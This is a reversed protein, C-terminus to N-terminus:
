KEWGAARVLLDVVEVEKGFMPVHGGDVRVVEVDVGGERAKEIFEEQKETMLVYDRLMQMYYVRVGEEKYGENTLANTFSVRSHPVLNDFHKMSEEPSLDQFIADAMQQSRMITPDIMPSDGPLPNGLANVSQDKQPLFAALYVLASVGGGDTFGQTKRSPISLNHVAQTGVFGAYSNMVVVVQLGRSALTTIVSSVHSADDYLTAAGEPRSSDTSPLTITHILEPPHSHPPTTLLTVVSSYVTPKSFSGPILIFATKSPPSM